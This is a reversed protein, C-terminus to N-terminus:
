CSVPQQHQRLYRQLPLGAPRSSTQSHLLEPTNFSSTFGSTGATSRESLKAVDCSQEKHVTVPGIVAVSIHRYNVAPQGVDSVKLSPDTIEEVLVDDNDSDQEPELDVARPTSGLSFGVFADEVISM